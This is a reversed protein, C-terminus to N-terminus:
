VEAHVELKIIKKDRASINPEPQSLVLEKYFWTRWTRSRPASLSDDLCVVRASLEESSTESKKKLFYQDLFLWVLTKRVLGTGSYM